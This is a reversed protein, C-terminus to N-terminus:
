PAISRLYHLSVEASERPPRQPHNLEITLWGAYNARALTRLISRFDIIGQGLECFTIPGTRPNTPLPGFDTPGNTVRESAHSLRPRPNLDKLHVYRVREAYDTILEAPDIGAAALHATDPALGLARPDTMAMILAVEEESEIVTSLHPHLVLSIGRDALATGVENIVDALRRYQERHFQSEHNRPPPGFVLHKAGVDRARTGVELLHRVGALISDNHIELVAAYVAVLQVQYEELAALLARQQEGDAPLSRSTLEIGRFGLAKADVLFHELGTKWGASHIAFNWNM